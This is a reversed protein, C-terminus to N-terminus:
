KGHSHSDRHHKHRQWARQEPDAQCFHPLDDDEPPLDYMARFIEWDPGMTRALGPENFTVDDDEDSTEQADPAPFETGSDEQSFDSPDVSPVDPTPESEPQAPEPAHERFHRKPVPKARPRANGYGYREPDAVRQM